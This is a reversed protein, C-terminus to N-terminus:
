SIACAEVRSATSRIGAATPASTLRGNWASSSWRESSASLAQAAVSSANSTTSLWPRSSQGRRRAPRRAKRAAGRRETSCCRRRVGYSMASCASPRPRISTPACGVISSMTPSSGAPSGSSAHRTPARATRADGATAFRRGRRAPRACRRTPSRAVAAAAAGRPTARRALYGVPRVYRRTQRSCM